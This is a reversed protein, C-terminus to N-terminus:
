RSEGGPAGGSGGRRFAAFAESAYLQRALGDYGERLPHSADAYQESPLAPPVFHPVGSEELWRRVGALRQRYGELLAGQLMHENFPGVLVFVRNGRGRLLEVTRRFCQWQFSGDLDVWQANIKGIGRATWPESTADQPAGQRWMADDRGLAAVPDECPHRLTWAPIDAGGFHALRLHGAWGAFPLERGIVISLREEVKERYCAIRPIFQPVLRPHNFAFEKDERLDRRPSSMWLLNCHVVVDRGRIAGGYHEVLGEMAAPHIGDVGLNAFVEGGAAANLRAPLTDGAGVYHGWVVSDGLVLTRGRSGDERALGAFLWYDDALEYPIRYDGPPRFGEVRWAGWPGLGLAAAVIAAVLVWQRVTLPVEPPPYQADAGFAHRPAPGADRPTQSM